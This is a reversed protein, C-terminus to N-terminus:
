EKKREAKANAKDVFKKILGRESIGVYKSVNSLGKFLYIDNDWAPHKLGLKIALKTKIFAIKLNINNIFSRNGFAIIQKKDTVMVPLKKFIWKENKENEKMYRNMRKAFYMILDKQVEPPINITNREGDKDVTQIEVM